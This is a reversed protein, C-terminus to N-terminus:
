KLLGAIRIDTVVVNRIADKLFHAYFWEDKPKNEDPKEYIYRRKDFTVRAANLARRFDRVKVADPNIDPLNRHHGVIPDADILRMYELLIAKQTGAKLEEFLKEWDHGHPAKETDQVYLCKLFLEVAFSDVLLKPGSCGWNIEKTQDGRAQGELLRSAESYHEALLFIKKFDPVEKPLEDKKPKKKSM